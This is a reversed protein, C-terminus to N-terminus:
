PALRGRAHAPRLLTRCIPRPSNCFGFDWGRPLIAVTLSGADSEAIPATESM